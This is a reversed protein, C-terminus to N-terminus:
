GGTRIFSSIFSYFLLYFLLNRRINASYFTLILDYRFSPVIHMVNDQGHFMVIIPVMILYWLIIESHHPLKPMITGGSLLCFISFGLSFLYSSWIVGHPCLASASGCRLGLALSPFLYCTCEQCAGEPWDRLQAPVNPLRDRTTM